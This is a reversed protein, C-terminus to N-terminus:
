KKEGLVCSEIIGGIAFGEFEMQLPNEEVFKESRKGFIQKKLWAIQEELQEIKSSQQEIKNSQSVAQKKFLAIENLLQEKSKQAVTM